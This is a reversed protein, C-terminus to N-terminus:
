MYYRFVTEPTVDPPLESLILGVTRAFGLTIPEAAAFDASNWNMRTLAILESIVDTVARSGEAPVDRRM